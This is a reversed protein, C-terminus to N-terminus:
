ARQFPQEVLRFRADFQEVLGHTSPELGAAALTELVREETMIYRDRKYIVYDGRVPSPTLNITVLNAGARLGRGYGDAAAINLASVAPIIWDPHMLRMVAMCNLAWDANAAAADKLPTQQGAVFPSVSCGVLPLENALKLDGLLDQEKQGPLGAIFGSSVHWGGDALMRIHALREALTGPAELRAYANSDSIEFKMIYVTAGAAQLEQYLSANLTGLCCIIGLSTEQRLIRILPLVVERVVVPDEGAQISVETISPPRRHVLVEAMADLSARYRDIVLNDRRMGCYHCNERCFNSVEVVGRVFVHRGYKTRTTASAREHLEQQALGEATIDKACPQFM